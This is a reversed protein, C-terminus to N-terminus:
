KRLSALLSCPRQAKYKHTLDVFSLIVLEAPWICFRTLQFLLQVPFGLRSLCLSRLLIIRHITLSTAALHYLTRHLVSYKYVDVADSLHISAHSFGSARPQRQAVELHSAGLSGM